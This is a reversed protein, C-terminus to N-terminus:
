GESHTQALLQQDYEALAASILTILSTAADKVEPKHTNPYLIFYEELTTKLRQCQVKVKNRDDANLYRYYSSLLFLEGLTDVLAGVSVSDRPMFYRIAGIGSVLVEWNMKFETARKLAIRKLTETKEEFIIGEM